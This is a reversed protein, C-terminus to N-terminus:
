MAATCCGNACRLWAPDEQPPLSSTDQFLKLMSSRLFGPVPVAGLSSKNVAPPHARDCSMFNAESVKDTGEYACQKFTGRPGYHVTAKGGGTKLFEVITWRTAGTGGHVWMYYDARGKPKIGYMAETNTKDHNELRAVVRDRDPGQNEDIDTTLGISQIDVEVCKRCKAANRNHKNVKGPDQADLWKKFDGLDIPDGEKPLDYVAPRETGIPKEGNCAWASFLLCVVSVSEFWARRGRILRM